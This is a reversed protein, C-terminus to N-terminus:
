HGIASTKFVPLATIDEHTRIGCGGGVQVAFAGQGAFVGALPSALFISDTESPTAAHWQDALRVAMVLRNSRAMHSM